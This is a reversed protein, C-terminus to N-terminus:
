DEAESAEAEEVSEPRRNVLMASGDPHKRFRIYLMLGTAVAFSAGALLQSVRFSGLYLSDTRLGEIWVRGLGYWALYALFVQGDYKRKKSLFHLLILGVLNWVSEYLFTPHWYRVLGTTKDILGMRLFFSNTIEAGYAERNFFNGWRGVSQGILLGLSMMDLYPTLKQKRFKAFLILGLIAGIVGGYIALGGEWIYLASIPNDRYVDWSFIVYYVRACVIAIPVTILIADTVLDFNTGFEKVRRRVYFIALLFGLAIVVGYLYIEKGFVTFPLTRPPDILDIGLGPFSIAPTSNLLTM